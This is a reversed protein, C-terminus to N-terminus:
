RIIEYIYGADENREFKKELGDTVLLRGDATVLVMDFEYGSRRWFDIAREEGMVFLATSFADAMTGSGATVAVAWLVGAALVLAELRRFLRKVPVRKM